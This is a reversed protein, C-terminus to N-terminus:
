DSLEAWEDMKQDLATKAEELEKCKESMKSYDSAIEPDSIANELEFILVETDEIEKELERIRNRKQADAARQEKSRYQKAKNEKYAKEEEARKIEAESQMKLQRAANVAESYADFNGEYANVEDHKIEIIRSAVKNLLYRDHSVLIITGGFEALADELVEKTSLDLHNTPEDLVLVNGRNLAM